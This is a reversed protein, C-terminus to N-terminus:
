TEVYFQIRDSRFSTRSYIIPQDDEDVDVSETELVPQNSAMKLLRAEDAVPRRAGIRTIRRRYNSVGVIKLAKTISTQRAFAALIDPLRGLPFYNTGLSVPSGDADGLLRVVAVPDGVSLLLQEAVAETSPQEIASILTRHPTRGSSHLNESFRTRAGLRYDLVDEVIFTGRGREVRLLGENQLHALARRVTHRNVQFRAALDADTPLREGPSLVGQDIEQLLTEGVQRWLSIGSANM